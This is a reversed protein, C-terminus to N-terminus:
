RNFESEYDGKVAYEGGWAVSKLLLLSRLPWNKTDALRSKLTPVVLMETENRDDHGRMDEDESEEKEEEEPSAGSVLNTFGKRVREKMRAGMGEREGWRADNM